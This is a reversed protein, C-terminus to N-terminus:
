NKTCTYGKNTMRTIYSSISEGENMPIYRYGSYTITLNKEDCTESLESVETRNDLFRQYEELNNFSYIADYSGLEIQNDQFSIKYYEEFQYTGIVSSNGIPLSYEAKPKACTYTEDLTLKEDSSSDKESSTDNALNSSLVIYLIGIILLLIGLVLVIITKKKMKLIGKM